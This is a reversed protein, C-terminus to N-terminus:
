CGGSDLAKPMLPSLWTTWCCHPRPRWWFSLAKFDAALDLHVARTKVQDYHAYSLPDLAYASTSVAGFLTFLLISPKM